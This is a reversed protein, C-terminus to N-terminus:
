PLDASEAAAKVSGDRGVGVWMYQTGVIVFVKQSQRACSKQWERLDLGSPLPQAEPHTHWEGIHDVCGGSEKWAKQAINQHGYASRRFSHRTRIDRPQPPTFGIVHLHLGRRLGLLVGGAEPQEDRLQRYTRIGAFVHQEFLLFADPVFPHRLLM